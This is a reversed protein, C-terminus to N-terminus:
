FRSFITAAKRHANPTPFMKYPNAIAKPGIFRTRFGDCAFNFRVMPCPRLYQEVSSHRSAVGGNWIRASVPGCAVRGYSQGLGFPM